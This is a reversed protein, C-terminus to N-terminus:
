TTKIGEDPLYCKILKTAMQAANIWPMEAETVSDWASLVTQIDHSHTAIM